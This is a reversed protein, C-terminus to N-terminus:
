TRACRLATSRKCLTAAYEGGMGRPLSGKKEEAQDRNV